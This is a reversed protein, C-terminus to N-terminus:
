RPSSLQKMLIAAIYWHGKKRKEKRERERERERERRRRGTHCSIIFLHGLHEEQLSPMLKQIIDKIYQNAIHKKQAPCCFYGRESQKLSSSQHQSPQTRYHAAQFHSNKYMNWQLSKKGYLSSCRDFNGLSQILSHLNSSHISPSVHM